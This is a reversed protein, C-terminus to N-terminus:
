IDNPIAAISNYFVSLSEESLSSGKTSEFISKLVCKIFM